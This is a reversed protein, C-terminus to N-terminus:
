LRATNYRAIDTILNRRASINSLSDEPFGHALIFDLHSIGKMREMVYVLLPEKESIDNDALEGHFQVSPARSGYVLRALTAIELELKLSKLRFQVVHELNPGAYVTYSCV